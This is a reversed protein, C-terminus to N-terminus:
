WYFHSPTPVCTGRKFLFIVADGRSFPNHRLVCALVCGPMHTDRAIFGQASCSCTGIGQCTRQTLTLPPSSSCTPSSVLDSHCSLFASLGHHPPVPVATSSGTPLHFPLIFLGHLSCSPCHVQQVPSIRIISAHAPHCGSFWTPLQFASRWEM